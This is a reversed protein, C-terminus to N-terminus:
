QRGGRRPITTYPLVEYPDHQQERIAKKTRYNTLWMVYRTIIEQNYERNDRVADLTRGMTTDLTTKDSEEIDSELGVKLGELTQLIIHLGKESM